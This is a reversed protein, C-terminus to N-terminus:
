GNRIGLKTKMRGVAKKGEKEFTSQAKKGKMNTTKKIQNQTPTPM